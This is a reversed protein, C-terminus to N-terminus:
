SLPRGGDVAIVAGTTFRLHTAAAVVADAVEQPLALRKLPTRMAQDDRWSV